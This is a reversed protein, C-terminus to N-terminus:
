IPGVGVQLGQGGAGEEGQGVEEEAQDVDEEEEEDEDAEVDDDVEEHLGSLDVLVVVVHFLLFLVALSFGTRKKAPSFFFVTKNPM